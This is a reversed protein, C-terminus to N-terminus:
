DHRPGGTRRPLITRGCAACYYATVQSVTGIFDIGDTTHWELPTLLFHKCPSSDKIKGSM